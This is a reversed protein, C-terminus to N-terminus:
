VSAGKNIKDLCYVTFTYLNEKYGNASKVTESQSNEVWIYPFKMQRSAGINYTPGYGFDSVLEHRIALDKFISIIKQLSPTNSAM